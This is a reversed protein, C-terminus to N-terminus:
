SSVKMFNIVAFKASTDADTKLYFPMQKNITSTNPSPLRPASTLLTVACFIFSDAGMVTHTKLSGRRCFQIFEERASPRTLNNLFRRRKLSV